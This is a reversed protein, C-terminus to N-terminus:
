VKTEGEVSRDQQQQDRDQGGPPLTVGRMAKKKEEGLRKM